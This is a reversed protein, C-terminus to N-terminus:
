MTHNRKEFNITNHWVGFRDKAIKERFGIRRFGCAEHLAISAKNEEIVSSYLTWYGLKESEAILHTMLAKGIGKGACNLDVYISVEVVGKYVERVSTPAIVIFGVVKGNWDAVFRCDKSHRENWVEFSPCETQFTAINLDLGQQYVRMVDSWDYDQFERIIFDDVNFDMNTEKQKFLMGNKFFNFHLLKINCYFLHFIYDVMFLLFVSAQM